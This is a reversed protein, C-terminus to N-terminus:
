EVQARVAKSYAHGQSEAISRVKLLHKPGAELVGDYPDTRSPLM